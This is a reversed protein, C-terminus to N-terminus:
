VADQVWLRRITYDVRGAHDRAHALAAIVATVRAALLPRPGLTGCGAAVCLDRWDANLRGDTLEPVLEHDRVIPSLADFFFPRPAADEFDIVQWNLSADVLINEPTLDAHALVQAVRGGHRHWWELSEAWGDLQHLQVPFEADPPEAREDVGLAPDQVLSVCCQILRQAIVVRSDFDLDELRRDFGFGESLV